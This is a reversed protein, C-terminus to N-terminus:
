IDGSKVSVVHGIKKYISKYKEDLFLARDKVSWKKTEEPEKM